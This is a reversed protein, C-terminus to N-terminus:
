AYNKMAPKGINFRVDAPFPNKGDETLIAQMKQLLIIILLDSLEM